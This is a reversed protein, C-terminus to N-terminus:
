RTLRFALWIGAIGGIVSFFISSFSFVDGGWLAPVFGGITSGLIMGVTIISKQGMPHLIGFVM